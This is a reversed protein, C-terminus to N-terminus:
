LMAAARKFLRYKAHLNRGNTGPKQGPDLPCKDWRGIQDHLPRPLPRRKGQDRIKKIVPTTGLQNDDLKSRLGGWYKNM